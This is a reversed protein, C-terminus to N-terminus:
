RGIAIQEAFGALLLARDRIGIIGPRLGRCMARLNELFRASEAGPRNRPDAQHGPLGCCDGGHRNVRISGSPARGTVHRSPQSRGRSRRQVADGPSPRSARGTEPSAPFSRLAATTCWTEFSRWDSAYARRTAPAKSNGAYARASCPGGGDDLGNERTAAASMEVPTTPRIEAGARARVSRLIQSVKRGRRSAKSPSGSRPSTQEPPHCGHRRPSPSPRSTRPPLRYRRRSRSWRASANRWTSRSLSPNGAM